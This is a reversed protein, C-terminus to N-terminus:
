RALKCRGEGRADNDYGGVTATMTYSKSQHNFNLRYSVDLQHSQTPINNVTWTLRNVKSSSKSLKAELPEGIVGQVVGDLVRATGKAEDIFLIVRPAIFGNSTHFSANCDYVTEAASAAGALSM